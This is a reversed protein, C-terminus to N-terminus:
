LTQGAPPRNPTRIGAAVFRLKKILYHCRWQSVRPLLHLHWPNESIVMVFSHGTDGYTHYALSGESSLSWSHRAYTFIQLGEGASTVDRYLYFIRSHSSFGSVFLSYYEGGNYARCIASVTYFVIYCDIVAITMSPVAVTRHDWVITCFYLM